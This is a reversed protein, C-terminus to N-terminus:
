IGEIAGVVAVKTAEALHERQSPLMQLAVEGARCPSKHGSWDIKQCDRGCYVTTRCGSCILMQVSERGEVKTCGSAECKRYLAGGKLGLKAANEITARPRKDVGSAIYDDVAENWQEMLQKWEFKSMSLVCNPSPSSEPSSADSLRVAVSVSSPLDRNASGGSRLVRGTQVLQQLMDEQRAQLVDVAMQTALGVKTKQLQSQLSDEGVETRLMGLGLNMPMVIDQKVVLREKKEDWEEVYKMRPKKACCASYTKRSGCPCIYELAHPKGGAVAHCNNLPLGSGCPCIRPPRPTDCYESVLSLFRTADGPNRFFEHPTCDETEISSPFPNAGHLLLAEILDWSSCLCAMHLLSLGRHTENPDAHHSILFLLVEHIIGSLHERIASPLGPGELIHGAVGHEYDLLVGFAYYLASLGADNTCGISTGLRVALGFRAFVAEDTLRSALEPIHPDEIFRSGPVKSNPDMEKTVMLHRIDSFFPTFIMSGPTFVLSGPTPTSKNKLAKWLERPLQPKSSPFQQQTGISETGPHSM